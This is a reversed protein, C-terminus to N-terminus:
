LEICIASSDWPEPVVDDDSMNFQEDLPFHYTSPWACDADADQHLYRIRPVSGLGGGAEDFEASESVDYFGWKYYVQWMVPGNLTLTFNFIGTGDNVAGYHNIDSGDSYGQILNLWKDHTRIYVSDAAADFGSGGDNNMDISFTVEISQGEPIVSGPFADYFSELPLELLGSGDDAGLMFGRNGEARPSTEWGIWDVISPEGNADLAGFRQAAAALSAETLEMYYAFGQEDEAQGTVELALSFINSGPTRTMNCGTCDQWNNFSGHVRVQDGNAINFVRIGLNGEEDLWETMDVNFLVTKTVDPGAPAPIEYDTSGHLTLLDSELNFAPNGGEILWAGYTTGDNEVAGWDHDGATIDSVIVTWVHDDATEDGGNTGDDYMPV